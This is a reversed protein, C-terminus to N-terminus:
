IKLRRRFMTLTDLIKAEYNLLEERNILRPTEFAIVVEDGYKGIPFSRGSNRPAESMLTRNGINSLAVNYYFRTHRKYPDRSEWFASAFAFCRKLGAIIDGEILALSNLMDNFLEKHKNETVNVDIIIIGNVRLEFRVDECGGWRGNTNSQLIILEKIGIEEDKSQRYVFLGVKSSHGIDYVQQKLEPSDLYVSDIVEEEREPSLIFRLGTEYQFKYPNKLIEEIVAIDVEPNELYDIIPLLTKEVEETLDSVTAFEKRFKGDIYDSLNEILDRAKEDYEIDQIFVLVPLSLRRAEEYEEEVVLKGSPTIVGGREGIIIIYIDCSAVGDICANRPSIPLGPSDEVLVPEGGAAIIGNRASERYESYGEIVSSIFVRPRM